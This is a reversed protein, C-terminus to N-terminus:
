PKRLLSEPLGARVDQIAALLADHVGPRGNSSVLPGSHITWEVGDYDTVRGGAERVFLVGPAADWANLWGEWFASLAGSAVHALDLAAAGLCRVSGSLTTIRAFEATNNDVSTGSHYPFGTAVLARRLEAVDNVRLQTEAGGAERRIAGAGALSYYVRSTHIQYTVGLLTQERHQLAINVANYDLGFAYNTTGDIPDVLWFYETDPMTNSEEGWLGVSPYRQALADRILRESAVDAETVLDGASTKSKINRLGAEQMIRVLEGAQRAVDVVVEVDKLDFHM